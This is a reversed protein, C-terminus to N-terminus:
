ATPSLFASFAKLISISPLSCLPKPHDGAYELQKNFNKILIYLLLYFNLAIFLPYAKPLDRINMKSSNEKEKLKIRMSKASTNQLM